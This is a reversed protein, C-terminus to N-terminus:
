GSSVEVEQSLKRHDGGVGDEKREICRKGVNEEVQNKQLWDLV